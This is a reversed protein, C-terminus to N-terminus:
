SWSTTARATIPKVSRAQPLAATPHPATPISTARSSNRPGASILTRWSRVGSSDATEIADGDKLMMAVSKTISGKSGNVNAPDMRASRPTTRSFNITMTRHVRAPEIHPGVPSILIPWPRLDSTEAALPGDDGHIAASPDSRHRGRYGPQRRAIRHGFGGSETGGIRDWIGNRTAPFVDFEARAPRVPISSGHHRGAAERAASAMPCPMALADDRHRVIGQNVDM